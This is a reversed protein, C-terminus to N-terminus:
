ASGRCSRRYVSATMGCSKQFCQAFYSQSSFGASHAVEAISYDTGALLEKAAQLRIRSLYQIPSCGCHKTFAHVMYYKNLHSYEALTDLTLDHMYNSEMYRKLSYCERSIQTPAEVKFGFSTRRMLTYMLAELLNHCINEYDRRREKLEHLMATMYFMLNEQEEGCSFVTYEKQDEFTFLIGEVGIAMYELPQDSSSKETHPINANIIVFDDRRIPYENEGICISGYGNQVYFLESFPHTHLFSPWDNEYKSHSIYLLRGDVRHSHSHEMLYRTNGMTNGGNYYNESIYVVCYVEELIRILYANQVFIDPDFLFDNDFCTINGWVNKIDYCKESFIVLYIFFTAIYFNYREVLVAISKDYFVSWLFHRRWQRIFM